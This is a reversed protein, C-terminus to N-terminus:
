DQHSHLVRDLGAGAGVLAAGALATRRTIGRGEPGRDKQFRPGKPNASSSM